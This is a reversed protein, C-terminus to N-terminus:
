NQGYRIKNLYTILLFPLVLSYQDSMTTGSFSDIFVYITYVYSFVIISGYKRNQYFRRSMTIWLLLFLFLGGFGYGVLLNGYAIDPTGMQYVTMLDEDWLGLQFNYYKNVQTDGDKMTGLGFINESLPRDSLYLIRETIWALRYTMTGQGAINGRALDIFDGHILSGIESPGSDDNLRSQIVDSFPVALLLAIFVFITMRKLRRMLYYGYMISILVAAWMTRGQTCLLAILLIAITLTRQKPKVIEPAIFILLIFCGLYQPFNYFRLLGTGQDAGNSSYPLTPLGTIVEISYLVSTVVTIWFLYKFVKQIEKINFKRLFFYCPVLLMTKAARMGQFLSTGYHFHSFVLCCIVFAVLAVIIKRITRDDDRRWNKEWISSYIFIILVYLFAMQSNSGGIVDETLLRLGNTAFTLFIILSEARRKRIYLIISIILLITGIM